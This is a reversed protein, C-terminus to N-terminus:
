EEIASVVKEIADLHASLEMELTPMQHRVIKRCMQCHQMAAIKFAPLAGQLTVTSIPSHKTESLEVLRKIGDATAQLVPTRNSLVNSMEALLQAHAGCLEQQKEDRKEMGNLFEGHKAVYQVVVGHADDFLARGLFKIIRWMAFGIFCILATPVGYNFFEKWTDPTM